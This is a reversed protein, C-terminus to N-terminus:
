KSTPCHDSSLCAQHTNSSSDAGKLENGGTRADNRGVVEKCMMWGEDIGM